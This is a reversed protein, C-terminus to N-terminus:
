NFDLLRVHIYIYVYIYIYSHLMQKNTPYNWEMLWGGKCRAFGKRRASQAHAGGFVWRDVDVHEDQLQRSPHYLIQSRSTLPVIITLLGKCGQFSVHCQFIGM